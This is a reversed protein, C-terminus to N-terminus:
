IQVVGTYTRLETESEAPEEETKAHNLTPSKNDLSNKELLIRECIVCKAASSGLLSEPRTNTLTPPNGNIGHRTSGACM